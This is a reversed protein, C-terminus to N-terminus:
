EARRSRSRARRGRAGGASRRSRDRVPAPEQDLVTSVFRRLAVPLAGRPAQDRLSRGAIVAADVVRQDEPLLAAAEIGGFRSLTSALQGAPGTGLAVGRLRNVVVSIRSPDVLEVLEAHGRLLRTVGVPDATGVEVVRDASGLVAFAAGNRRPAFLDSSIEEDAELCFATDIVIDDMWARCREITTAVRETSLETWRAARSIGTLVRFAGSPSPHVVAIRELQEIDLAGSGALRCAAAFGPAEDLLGLMAAVSSGYTDADILVVRRGRAALESAIGAAVTTTGPSGAAGWVAIVRGAAQAVPRPSDGGLDLPAISRDLEEPDVPLLVIDVLGLAAAHRRESEGSALAVVRTGVRDALDILEARLRDAGPSVLLVDVLTGAGVREELEAGDHCRWAVRHGLDLMTALIEGEVRPDLALGVRLM